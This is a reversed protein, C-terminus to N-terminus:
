LGKTDYEREECSFTSNNVIDFTVKSHRKTYIFDTDLPPNQNAWWIVRVEHVRPCISYHEVFSKLDRIDIPAIM